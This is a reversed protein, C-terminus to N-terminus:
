KGALEVQILRHDSGYSEGRKYNYSKLEKDHMIYDIRYSPYPGTYTAGMGSGCEVFADNLLGTFEGYTYSMPTDNFDGCLIVKYPSDEIEKVLSDVQPARLKFGNKLRRLINKSNEVAKDKDEFGKELKVKNLLFSQLHINFVRFTDKDIVIDAWLAGNNSRLKAFSISKHKIIKHPSAITLDNKGSDMSAYYFKKGVAAKLEDYTTTKNTIHVHRNFEQFCIIDPKEEKLYAFLETYPNGSKHREDFNQINCSIIKLTEKGAPKNEGSLQVYRGLYPLGLIVVGLSIFVWLKARMLWYFAFCLNIIVLIFYSLGLFSLPWFSQPSVSPALYSCLLLAAVIINLIFIVKNVIFM